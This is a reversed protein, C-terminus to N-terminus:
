NGGREGRLPTNEQVDRPPIIAISTSSNRRHNPLKHPLDDDNQLHNLELM